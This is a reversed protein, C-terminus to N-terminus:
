KNSQKTGPKKVLDVGLEKGANAILLELAKVKLQAEQLEGEKQKLQAIVESELVPTACPAAVSPLTVGGYKKMYWRLISRFTTINGLDYKVTLDRYSLDSTLYEQSIAIRFADDYQSQKGVNKKM